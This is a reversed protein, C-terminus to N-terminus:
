GGEGWLNFMKMRGPETFGLFALLFYEAQPLYGQGDTWLGFPSGNRPTQTLIHEVSYKIRPM